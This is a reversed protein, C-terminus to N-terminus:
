PTAWRSGDRNVFPRFAVRAAVAEGEVLVEYAGSEVWAAAVGGPNRLWGLGAAAGLSHGYAGSSVYGVPEGNRLLPEGGFLVPEADALLLCVLRRELADGGRERLPLLAERGVFGGPKAFDCIRGLGVHFPTEATSVEHGYHVLGREIRCSDLAYMGGPRLGFGEGAAELREWAHAALDAELHLEFGPGGTFAVRVAAAQAAGIEVPRSAGPPFGAPSFDAGTIAALVGEAKPGFLGLIATGASIDTVTVREESRMQRRLWHRDRRAVAAGTIVRFCTPALRLVTLDAEIGGAADLWHTYVVRGPPRDVNATSVRQLLTCSDEGRIEFVAFSSLDILGVGQRFALHEAAASAHWNQRGFGYRQVPESGAPAFWNARELGAVEGFCAGRERLLAHLPGRRIGRETTLQRYPYHHDYLLGLTEVSRGRVYARASAFAPNRRIDLATLDTPPRGDVIWDALASAYGASGQIGQSNCGCASWFGDIRDDPGLQVGGDPTFSEPGCFFKRIGLQGLIPLRRTVSEYVPLFQEEVDGPLEGFSFDAPLAEPDIPRARREFAGVLIGGADEKVYACASQDRLVPLDRPVRDDKVTVAYYHEVAQLPVGAGALRGVEHGWLGACNAIVSTRIRQGAVEVGAVREREVLIRDVGAGEVIRAGGLRAARAVSQAFDVPSVWGEGPAFMGGLLGEPELLPHLDALERATCLRTEPGWVRTQDHLRRLESWRDRDGAIWLSGVRRFGTALGSEAEVAALFDHIRHVLRHLTESARVSGVLGAAHWTTGSAIRNRELVVVEGARRRCLHWATALGLIGGGIVVIDARDPLEPTAPAPSM